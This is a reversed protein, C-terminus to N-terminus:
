GLADPFDLIDMGAETGAKVERDIHEGRTIRIQGAIQQRTFGIHAQHFAAAIIRMQTTQHGAIGARDFARAQMQINDAIQAANVRMQDSNGM